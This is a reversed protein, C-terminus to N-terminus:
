NFVVFITEDFSMFQSNFLFFLITSFEAISLVCVKARNEQSELIAFSNFLFHHFNCNCLIWICCHLSVIVGQVHQPQHRSLVGVEELSLELLDWAGVNGITM